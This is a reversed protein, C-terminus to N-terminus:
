AIARLVTLPESLVQQPRVIEAHQVAEAILSAFDVKPSCQGIEHFIYSNVSPEASAPGLNNVLTFTYRGYAPDYKQIVAECRGALWQHATRSSTVCATQAQELSAPTTDLVQAYPYNVSQQQVWEVGLGYYECSEDSASCGVVNSCTGGSGLQDWAFFKGSGCVARDTYVKAQPKLSTTFGLLGCTGTSDTIQIEPISVTMNAQTVSSSVPCGPIYSANEAIATHFTQFGTPVLIEIARALRPLVQEQYQNTMVVAEASCESANVTLSYAQYNLGTSTYMTWLSSNLAFVYTGDVATTTTVTMEPTLSLVLEASAFAADKCFIQGKLRYELDQQSNCVPNSLVLAVSMFLCSWCLPQMGTM